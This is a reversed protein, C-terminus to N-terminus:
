RRGDRPRLLGARDSSWTSGLDPRGHDALALALGPLDLEDGALVVGRARDELGLARPEGVLVGLALGALAVVAAALVDVDDLAQGLLAREREERAGLVDVDLRVRARLGVHGGVEGDELVAVADQAHAQGMAAVEGVAMGSLKAAAQELDVGVADRSSSSRM